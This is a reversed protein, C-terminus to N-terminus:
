LLDLVQALTERDFGSPVEVRAPGLQIVILAAQNERRDEDDRANMVGVEVFGATPSASKATAEGIARREAARRALESRWFYFSSTTIGRERCFRAVSLRSRAQEAFVQRWAQEREGSRRGGAVCQEAM